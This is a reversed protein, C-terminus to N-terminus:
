RSLHESPLALRSDHHSGRVPGPGQKDQGPMRRIHHGKHFDPKLREPLEPPCNLAQQCHFCIRTLWARRPLYIPLRPTGPGISCAKAETRDVPRLLCPRTSAEPRYGSSSDLLDLTSGVKGWSDIADPEGVAARCSSRGPAQYVNYYQVNAINITMESLGDFVPKCSRRDEVGARLAQPYVRPM